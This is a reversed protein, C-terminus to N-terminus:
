QKLCKSIQFPETFYVWTDDVAVDAGGWSAADMEAPASCVFRPVRAMPGTPSAKIDGKETIWYIDQGDTAVGAVGSSEGTLIESFTAAGAAAYRIGGTGSSRYGWYVDTGYVAIGSVGQQSGFFLTSPPGYAVSAPETVYV